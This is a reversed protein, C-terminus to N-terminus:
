LKARNYLNITYEIVEKKNNIDLMEVFEEIAKNIDVGSLDVSSDDRMKIKTYNVDYDVQLDNSKYSSMKSVLADLHDSSINKDIILKVINNPLISEFNKDVDKLKILRSLYIPIHKPTFTNEIFEYKSTELDLIYLGKKQQTDGFDMEFPNGVYLITSDNIKKEDRLHFHGSIILPSKDTLKHPDDGDECLKHANMRFNQLEFHGFVIDSEPIDELKTGWPCFTFQKGKVLNNIVKLEDFVTINKWGKFLTLSNVESNDKYYCDHNGTIMYINYDALSQLIKQAVDLTILSVEDRYHFLDGCFIIDTIENKSLEEKFWKVWEVSIDLWFTSNQHVGLHLDSFIAVKKNM